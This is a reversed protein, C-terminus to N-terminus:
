VGKGERERAWHGEKYDLGVWHDLDLLLSVQGGLRLQGRHESCVTNLPGCQRHGVSPNCCPCVDRRLQTTTAKFVSGGKMIANVITPSM